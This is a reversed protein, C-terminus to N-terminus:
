NLIFNKINNKWDDLINLVEEKLINSIKNYEKMDAYASLEELKKEMGEEDMNETQIDKTLRAVEDLWEIGEVIYSLLNMAEEKEDVEIKNICMNIGSILKVIYEDATQLIEIQQEELSKEM